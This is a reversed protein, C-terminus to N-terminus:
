PSLLRAQRGHLRDREAFPFIQNVAPNQIRLRKFGAITRQTPPKHPKARGSLLMRLM